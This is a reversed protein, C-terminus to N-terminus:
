AFLAAAADAMRLGLRTPVLRGNGMSAWGQRQTERIARDYHAAPDRGLIFGVEALDVGDTTRLGLMIMELARQGPTLTEKFELPEHGLSLSDAYELADPVFSWRTGALHGHAGPGLALYDGGRWTSQNHRCRGGPWAFNSVEYRELASVELRDLLADEMALLAEGSPLPPQGPRYKRGFPTHPGLTLEYLSLHDPKLDLAQELDALAMARDQGPLGYILDLNLNYFGAQRAQAASRIIDAPSHLRGLKKLMAANFSQAGISLRNIGTRRMLRLKALSLTGPNAELTIEAGAELGLSADIKELLNALQAMPLMSPTGGGIFITSLRRGTAQGALLTIHRGIAQVVKRAPAPRYQEAFFDCYPCRAPCYPLHLYLGLESQNAPTKSVQSGPHDAAPPQDRRGPIQRRAASGCIPRAAAVSHTRHPRIWYKSGPRRHRRLTAATATNGHKILLGGVAPLDIAQATGPAIQCSRELPPMTQITLHYGGPPLPLPSGTHGRWQRTSVGPGVATVLARVPGGPGTLNATLSGRPGLVLHQDQGAALDVTWSVSPKAVSILLRGAPLGAEFPLGTNNALLKGAPITSITIKWALAKGTADIAEVFLKGQGGARLVTQGANAVRVLGPPTGPGIKTGTPWTVIYTDALVQAKTNSMVPWTNGKDNSSAISLEIGLPKNEADRVDAYLSARSLGLRVLSHLSAQLRAPNSESLQRGGSQLILPAQMGLDNTVPGIILGHVFPGGGAAKLVGGGLPLGAVIM